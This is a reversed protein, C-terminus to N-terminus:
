DHIKSSKKTLPLLNKQDITNRKETLLLPKGRRRMPPLPLSFWVLASEEAEQSNTNFATLLSGLFGLTKKVLM